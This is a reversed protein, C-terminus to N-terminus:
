GGLVEIRHYEWVIIGNKKVFPLLQELQVLGNGSIVLDFQGIGSLRSRWANLDLFESIDQQHYICDAQVDKILNTILDENILDIGVFKKVKVTKEILEWLWPVGCGCDIVSIEDSFHDLISTVYENTRRNKLRDNYPISYWKYEPCKKYINDQTVIKLYKNYIEIADEHVM